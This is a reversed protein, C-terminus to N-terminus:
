QFGENNDVRKRFEPFKGSVNERLSWSSFDEVADLGKGKLIDGKPTQIQVYTDSTVKHTNKNWKLRQTQIIQGNETKIYVNGWVEFSEMMNTTQGSDSLIRTGTRGSSDFLALVVPVVLIKGENDLNKRMYEADLQWNKISGDYFFLTSRTFEQYPVTVSDNVVPIAKDKGGCGSGSGALFLGAVLVVVARGAGKCGPYKGAIQEPNRNM